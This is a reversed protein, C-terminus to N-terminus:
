QVLVPHRTDDMSPFDRHPLFAEQTGPILVLAQPRATSKNPGQSPVWIICTPVHHKGLMCSAM